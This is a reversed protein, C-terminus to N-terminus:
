TRSDSDGHCWGRGERVGWTWCTVLDKDVRGRIHAQAGREEGNQLGWLVAPGPHTHLLHGWWQSGSVPSLMRPRLVLTPVPRSAPPCCLTTPVAPPESPQALPHLPDPSSHPHTHFSSLTLPQTRAHPCPAPIHPAVQTCSAAAATRPPPAWLSALSPPWDPAPTSSNVPTPSRSARPSCATVRGGVGPPQCLRRSPEEQRAPQFLAQPLQLPHSGDVPPLCHPICQGHLHPPAPGEGLAQDWAREQGLAGAGWSSPRQSFPRGLGGTSVTGGAGCTNSEAMCSSSLTPWPGALGPARKRM